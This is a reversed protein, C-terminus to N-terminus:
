RKVESYCLSFTVDHALRESDYFKAIRTATLAIGSVFVRFGNNWRVTVDM